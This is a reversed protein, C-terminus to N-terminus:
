RAAPDTVPRLPRFERALWDRFAEIEIVGLWGLDSAQRGKRVAKRSGATAIQWGEELPNLWVHLARSKWNTDLTYNAVTFAVLSPDCIGRVDSRDHRNYAVINYGGGPVPVLRVAMDYRLQKAIAKEIDREAEAREEEPLIYALTKDCVTRYEGYYADYMRECNKTGVLDAEGVECRGETCLGPAGSSATCPQNGAYAIECAGDRCVSAACPNAARPCPGDDSCRVQAECYGRHCVGRDGDRECTGSRDDAVCEGARCVDRTCDRGDDCDIDRSCLGGPLVCVGRTCTGPQGSVACADGIECASDDRELVGADAPETSALRPAKYADGSWRGATFGIVAAVLVLLAGCAIAATKKSNVLKGRGSNLAM